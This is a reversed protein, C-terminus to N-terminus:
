LIYGLGSLKGMMQLHKETEIDCWNYDKDGIALAFYIDWLNFDINFFYQPGFEKWNDSRGSIYVKIDKFSESWKGIEEYKEKESKFFHIYKTDLGCFLDFGNGLVVKIGNPESSSISDCIRSVSNNILM